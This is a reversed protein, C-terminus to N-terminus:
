LKCIKWNRWDYNTTKNLAGTKILQQLGTGRFFAAKRSANISPNSFRFNLQAM